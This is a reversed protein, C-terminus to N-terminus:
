NMICLNKAIQINEFYYSNTLPKYYVMKFINNLIVCAQYSKLTTFLRTPNNNAYVHYVLKNNDYVTKVTINSLVSSEIINGMKNKRGIYRQAGSKILQHHLSLHFKIFTM